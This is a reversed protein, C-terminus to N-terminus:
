LANVVFEPCMGVSVVYKWNIESGNIVGFSVAKLRFKPVPFESTARPSWAWSKEAMPFRSKESSVLTGAANPSVGTLTISVGPLLAFTGVSNATRVARSWFALASTSFPMVSAWMGALM